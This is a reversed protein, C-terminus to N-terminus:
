LHGLILEDPVRFYRVSCFGSQALMDVLHAFTVSALITTPSSPEKIDFVIVMAQQDLSPKVERGFRKLGPGVEVKFHLIVSM